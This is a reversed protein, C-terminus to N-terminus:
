RVIVLRSMSWIMNSQQNGAVLHLYYTGAVVSLPADVGVAFDRKGSRLDATLDAVVRGTADVLVLSGAGEDIGSIRIISIDTVPNPDVSIDLVGALSNVYRRGRPHTWIGQYRVSIDDIGPTRVPPRYRIHFATSFRNFLASDANGLVAVFSFRVLTDKDSVAHIRPLSWTCRVVDDQVSRSIGDGLLLVAVAPNYEFSMTAADLLLKESENSTFDAIVSLTFTDGLAVSSSSPIAFLKFDPTPRAVVTVNVKVLTSDWALLGQREASRRYLPFAISYDDPEASLADVSCTLEVTDSNDAHSRRKQVQVTIGSVQQVDYEFDTRYTRFVLKSSVTRAEGMFVAGVNVVHQDQQRVSRGFLRFTVTDLEEETVPHMRILVLSDSYAGQKKPYFRVSAVRISDNQPTYVKFSTARFPESPLLLDAFAPRVGGIPFARMAAFRSLSDGILLPEGFGVNIVHSRSVALGRVLIRIPELGRGPRVPEFHITDVYDGARVPSFEIKLFFNDNRPEWPKGPDLDIFFPPKCNRELRYSDDFRGANKDIFQVYVDTEGVILPKFFVDFVRAHTSAALCAFLLTVVLWRHQWDTVVFGALVPSM